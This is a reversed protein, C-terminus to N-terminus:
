CALIGGVVVVGFGGWFWGSEGPAEVMEMEEIEFDEVEYNKDEIM